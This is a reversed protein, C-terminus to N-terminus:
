PSCAWPPLLPYHSAFEELSESISARLEQETSYGEQHEEFYCDVIVGWDGFNPRWPIIGSNRLSCAVTHLACLSLSGAHWRRRVLALLLLGPVNDSRTGPVTPLLELGYDPTALSLEIAWLPPQDHAAIITDAWAQVARVDLLDFQLALQAFEAYDRISPPM